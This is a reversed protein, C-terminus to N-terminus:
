VALDNLVAKLVKVEMEARALMLSVYARVDGGQSLTKGIAALETATHTPPEQTVPAPTAASEAPAAAAADTAKRSSTRRQRTAPAATEDAATTTPPQAVSADSQDPLGSMAVRLQSAQESPADSPASAAAASRGAGRGRGRSATAPQEFASLPKAADHLEARADYLKDAIINDGPPIYESACWLLHWRIYRAGGLELIDKGDKVSEEDNEMDALLEGVSTRRDPTDAGVIAAIDDFPVYLDLNTPKTNLDVSM